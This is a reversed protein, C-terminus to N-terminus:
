VKLIGKSPEQAYTTQSFVNSAPVQEAQQTNNQIQTTYMPNMCNNLKLFDPMLFDNEYNTINGQLNNGFISSSSSTTNYTTLPNM